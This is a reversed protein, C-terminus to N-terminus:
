PTTRGRTVPGLADAPPAKGWVDNASDWDPVSPDPWLRVGTVNAKVPVLAQYHDGTGWIEVPLKVDTTSGDSLALRMEVPFPISTVRRLSIRAYPDGDLTTMSVSDVAIDLVDDSYLFGRWFWGLDRGTQNEV